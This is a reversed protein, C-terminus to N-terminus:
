GTPPLLFSAYKLIVGPFYANSYRGLDTKGRCQQRSNKRLVCFNFSSSCLGSGHGPQASSCDNGRPVAGSCGGTTGQVQGSWGMCSIHGQGRVLGALRHHSGCMTICGPTDRADGLGTLTHVSGESWCGQPLLVRGSHRPSGRRRSAPSLLPEWSLATVHVSPAFDCQPWKM